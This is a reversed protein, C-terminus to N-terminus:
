ARLMVREVNQGKICDNPTFSANKFCRLASEAKHLLRSNAGFFSFFFTELLMLHDRLHTNKHLGEEVGSRWSSTLWESCFGQNITETNLLLGLGRSETKLFHKTRLTRSEANWWKKSHQTFTLTFRACTRNQLFLGRAMIRHRLHAHLSFMIHQEMRKPMFEGRITQTPPSPVRVSGLPEGLLMLVVLLLESDLTEDGGRSSSGRVCLWLAVVFASCFALAMFMQFWRRHHPRGGLGLSTM